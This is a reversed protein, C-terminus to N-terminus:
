LQKVTDYSVIESLPIRIAEEYFAGTKNEPTGVLLTGIGNPDVGAVYVAFKREPIVRQQSYRFHQDFTGKMVIEALEVPKLNHHSENNEWLFKPLHSLETIDMRKIVSQYCIFRKTPFM